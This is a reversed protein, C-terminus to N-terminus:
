ALDAKEEGVGLKSLAQLIQVQRQRGACLWSRVSLLTLPSCSFGMPSVALWPLCFCCELKARLGLFLDRGELPQGPITRRLWQARQEERRKWAPSAHARTSSKHWGLGGEAAGNGLRRGEGPPTYSKRGHSPQPGACSTSPLAAPSLSLFM